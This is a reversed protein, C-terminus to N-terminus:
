KAMFVVRGVVNKNCLYSNIKVIRSTKLCPMSSLVFNKYLSYFDCQM